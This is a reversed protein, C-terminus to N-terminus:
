KLFKIKTPKGLKAIPSKMLSCLSLIFFKLNVFTSEIMAITTNQAVESRSFYRNTLLLSLAGRSWYKLVVNSAIATNINKVIATSNLDPLTDPMSSRSPCRYESRIYM